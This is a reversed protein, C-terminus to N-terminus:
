WNLCWKGVSFSTNISLISDDYALESLEGLKIIKKKLDMDGKLTNEYEEKTVNKDVGSM